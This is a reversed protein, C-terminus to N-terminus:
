AAGSMNQARDRLRQIFSEPLNEPDEVDVTAAGGELRHADLYQDLEVDDFAVFDRAFMKCSEPESSAM